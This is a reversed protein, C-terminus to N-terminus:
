VVTTVVHKKPVDAPTPTSIVPVPTPEDAPPLYKVAYGRSVVRIQEKMGVSSDKGNGQKVAGTRLNSVAGRVQELTVDLTSALATLSVVENPHNLLHELVDGKISMEEEKQPDFIQFTRRRPLRGRNARRGGKRRTM